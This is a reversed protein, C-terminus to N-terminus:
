GTGVAILSQNIQYSADLSDTKPDLYSTLRAMRYPSIKVLVAFTLVCGIFLLLLYKKKSGAM